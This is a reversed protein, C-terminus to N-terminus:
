LGGSPPLEHREGPDQVDGAGGAPTLAADPLGTGPWSARSARLFPLVGRELLAASWADQAATVADPDHPGALIASHGDRLATLLMGVSGTLVGAGALALFTWGAVRLPGAIEPAPSLAGLLYGVLLFIVAATGALVPALVAVMPFLGAGSVAGAMGPVPVGPVRRGTAARAERDATRIRLYAAYEDAARAAIADCDALAMTRLQETNPVATATAPSSGPPATTPPAATMSRLAQDLVREFQPRDETLLHPSDIM